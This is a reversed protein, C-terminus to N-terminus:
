NVMTPLLTTTWSSIRFLQFSVFRYGGFSIVVRLHVSQNEWRINQLKVEHYISSSTHLSDDYMSLSIPSFRNKSAFSSSTDLRAIKGSRLLCTAKRTVNSSARMRREGDVLESYLYWGSSPRKSSYLVLCTSQRLPCLIFSEYYNSYFPVVSDHIRIM